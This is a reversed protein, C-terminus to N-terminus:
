PRWGVLSIRDMLTVLWRAFEEGSDWSEFRVIDNRPGVAPGHIRSIWFIKTPDITGRFQALTARILPAIDPTGDALTRSTAASTRAVRKGRARNSLGYPQIAYRLGGNKV